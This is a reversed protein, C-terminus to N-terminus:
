NFYLRRDIKNKIISLIVKPMVIFAILIDFLFKLISIQNHASELKQMAFICRKNKSPTIHKKQIYVDVNEESFSDIGKKDREWYLKRQYENIYFQELRYKNSLSHNRIRYKLLYEDLIVINCGASKMRLWLDYDQSRKFNRYGGMSRLVDSRVLVSPHVILTTFPLLINPDENIRPAYYLESDEEDIFIRNTSVMDAKKQEIFDLEREFRTPLSIDDADMRAIYEGQALSIGKNMSKALGLNEENFILRIRKDSSSVQSIYSCILADIKPNDIIILFEFNRYTQSLISEISLKLWEIKENYVSMLVTIM